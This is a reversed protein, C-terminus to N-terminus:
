KPAHIISSVILLLLNLVGSRGIALSASINTDSSQLAPEVGRVRLSLMTHAREDSSCYIAMLGYVLSPVVSAPPKEELVRLVGSHAQTRLIGGARLLHGSGLESSTRLVM